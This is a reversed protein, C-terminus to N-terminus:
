ACDAHHGRAARPQLRHRAAHARGQPGGRQAAQSGAPGHRRLGMHVGPTTTNHSITHSAPLHQDTPKTIPPHSLLPSPQFPRASVHQTYPLPIVDCFVFSLLWGAVCGCARVYVYKPVRVQNKATTALNFTGGCSVSTVFPKKGTNPDTPFQVSVPLSESAGSLSLSLSLTHHTPHPPTHTHTHTYNTQKYHTPPHTSLYSHQPQGRARM